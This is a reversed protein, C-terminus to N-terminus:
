GDKVVVRFRVTVHKEGKDIVEAYVMKWDKPLIKTVNITRSEGSRYVRLLRNM